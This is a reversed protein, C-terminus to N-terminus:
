HLRLSVRDDLFDAVDDIARLGAEGLHGYLIAADGVSVYVGGAGLAVLEDREAVVNVAEHGLQKAELAVVSRVLGFINEAAHLPSELAHVPAVRADLQHEVYAISRVVPGDKCVGRRASALVGVSVQLVHRPRVVLDQAVVRVVVNVVVETHDLAGLPSDLGPFHCLHELGRVVGALRAPVRQQHEVHAIERRVREEM